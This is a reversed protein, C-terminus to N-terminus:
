RAHVWRSPGVSDRFSVDVFSADRHLDPKVRLRFRQKKHKSSVDLIRFFFTCKGDAGIRPCDGGGGGGGNSPDAPAAVKRRKLISQDPVLTQDEYLLQFCLPIRPCPAAAGGSNNGATSGTATRGGGGSGGTVLRGGGPGVSRLLIAAVLFNGPGQGDRYWVGPLHSELVDFDLQFRMVRFPNSVAHVVHWKARPQGRSSGTATSPHKVEGTVVLRLAQNDHQKSTEFITVRFSLQATYTMTLVAPHASDQVGSQRTVAVKLIPRGYSDVVPTGVTAAVAEGTEAEAARLRSGTTQIHNAGDGDDYVLFCSLDLEQGFRDAGVQVGFDKGVLPHAPVDALFELRVTETMGVGGCELVLILVGAVRRDM